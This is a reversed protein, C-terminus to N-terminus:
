FSEIFKHIDILSLKAHTQFDSIKYNLIDMIVFQPKESENEFVFM